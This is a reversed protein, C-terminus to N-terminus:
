LTYDISYGICGASAMDQDLIDGDNLKDQLHFRHNPKNICGLNQFPRNSIDQYRYSDWKHIKLIYNLIYM